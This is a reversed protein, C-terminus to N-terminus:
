ADSWLHRHRLRGQFSMEKLNKPTGFKVKLMIIHFFPLALGALFPGFYSLVLHKVDDDCPTRQVGLHNVVEQQQGRGRIARAKDKVITPDDWVVGVHGHPVLAVDINLDAVGDCSQFVKVLINVLTVVTSQCHHLRFSPSQRSCRRLRSCTPSIPVIHKGGPIFDLIVEIPSIDIGVFSAMPKKSKVQVAHMGINVAQNNMQRILLGSVKRLPGHNLFGHHAVVGGSQSPPTIEVSLGFRFVRSSGSQSMVVVVM